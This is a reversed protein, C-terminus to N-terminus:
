MLGEFLASGVRVMTAGEEIAIEYDDSMGMSLQDLVIQEPCDPRLRELLGRLAAFDRRARDAGGDLSAMTMLGLVYVNQLAAIAQLVQSMEDPAFGHKNADGSINVELLVDAPRGNAAAERDIEELLRLSDVSHIVVGWCAALTRRVKNRQLHGILHWAVQMGGLAEVKTWLDQPRGEGLHNVGTEEVLLRMKEAGVYKTVGILLIEHEERGARAAAAAIRERVRAVNDKLRAVIESETLPM